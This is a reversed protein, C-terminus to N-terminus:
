KVMFFWTSTTTEGSEVEDQRCDVTCSSGAGISSLVLSLLSHNPLNKGQNEVIKYPTNM